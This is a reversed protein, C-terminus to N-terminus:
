CHQPQPADVSSRVLTGAHITGGDCGNHDHAGYPFTDDCPVEERCKPCVGTTGSSEEGPLLPRTASM